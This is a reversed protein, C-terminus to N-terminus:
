RSWVKIGATESARLVDSLPAKLLAAARDSAHAVAARDKVLQADLAESRLKWEDAERRLQAKEGVLAAREQATQTREAARADREAVYQKQAEDARHRERAAAWGSAAALALVLVVVAVKM